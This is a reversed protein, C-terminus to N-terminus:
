TRRATTGRARLTLPTMVRRAHSRPAAITELLLRAAAAGIAATGQDVSSLPVRLMDSYRMNAAGIVAVDEPVRLGAEFIARLAGVAVPDNFCFVGDPRADRALLRTMARYGSEDDNGAEVVLQPDYALGKDALAARYGALRGAGNSSSPGALHAIRVCGLEALHATAMIGLAADDSGVYNAEFEPLERDILVFPTRLTALLSPERQATAIVLGDVQRSVLVGIDEREDEANEGSHSILLHYGAPAITASIATAIEAFFSQKLDPIVLGILFTRGTVMSRAVWDVRYGLEDARRLVKAKTDSSIDHHDRLAKSVAMVSIGLDRAIDKMRVKAM